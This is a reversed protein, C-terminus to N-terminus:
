DIFDIMFLSDVRLGGKTWILFNCLFSFKLVQDSLEVNEFVRKNREKWVTWFPSLPAVNCAKKRKKGVFHGHWGLLMEKVSSHVVWVVGLLSFVLQWLLSAKSCHLLIHDCSEEEGKCLFCRNM